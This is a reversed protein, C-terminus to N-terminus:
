YKINVIKFIFFFGLGEMVISIVVLIRGIDTEFLKSMYSPNLVMLIAAVVLPMLGIIMGSARGQGTLTKIEAKIRLRERITESIVELIQSLNGGTQRQVSVAAVTLMLDASDIRDVMNNLVEDLNAGYNMENCARKFETGIPDEMEDAINEMAQSFTLGSRLCNCCILLADSLQGDFAKARDAQKKKVYIMPGAVGLIALVGPLFPNSRVLLVALFAPGFALLIWVIAFEEPKMMINAAMLEDFIAEGIKAVFSDKLDSNQGRRKSKEKKAKQKKLEEQRKRDTVYDLRRSVLRQTETIKGLVFVAIAFFTVMYVAVLVYASIQLGNM